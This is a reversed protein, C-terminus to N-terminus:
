PILVKRMRREGDVIVEQYEYKANSFPKKDANAKLRYVYDSGEEVGSIAYGRNRLQRIIESLRTIKEYPLDLYYNRSVFGEKELRSKVREYQTIM